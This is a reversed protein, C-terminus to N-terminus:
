KNGREKRENQLQEIEAILKETMGRVRSFRIKEFGQFQRGLHEKKSMWPNEPKKGNRVLTGQLAKLVVGKKETKNMESESLSVEVAGEAVNVETNEEDLMELSFETGRVGCIATPTAIEGDSIDKKAKAWLVGCLMKLFSAKEETNRERPILMSSNNGIRVIWSAALKITAKGDDGTRVVTGPPLIENIELSDFVEGDFSRAVDGDVFSAITVDSFEEEAYLFFGFFLLLFVAAKM